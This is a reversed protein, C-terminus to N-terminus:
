GGSISALLTVTDADKLRTKLGKLERINRDNVFVNIHRRVKGESDFVHFNLAPYRAVAEKLVEMVTGAQVPIESQQDVYYRM